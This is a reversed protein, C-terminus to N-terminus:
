FRSASAKEDEIAMMVLILRERRVLYSLERRAMHRRIMSQMKVAARAEAAQASGTGKGKGAPARPLSARARSVQWPIIAAISTDSPALAAQSVDTIIGVDAASQETIRLLAEADSNGPVGGSGGFDTTVLSGRRPKRFDRAAPEAQSGAAAAPAASLDASSHGTLYNLIGAM